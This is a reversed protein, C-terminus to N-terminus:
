VASSRAALAKRLGAQLEEPFVPLCRRVLRATASKGSISLMQRLFYACESPSRRALTDLCRNLEGQLENPAAQVLPGIMRFIRPLNEFERDAIMPRAAKLGIEQILLDHGGLWTEIIGLWREPQQRRLLQSGRDVLTDLSTGDVEPQCWALLREVVAEVQTLPISGLLAAALQRPELYPNKWLLDVLALAAAPQEQCLRGLEQEMQRLVMVPAHYTLILPRARVAQGARYTRDSHKELLDTLRKQFAEPDTFVWALQSIEGKLRDLQIAPM